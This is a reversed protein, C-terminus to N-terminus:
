RKTFLYDIAKGDGSITAKLVSGDLRYVIKKPFDHQPNEFTVSNASIETAAFLIASNNQPVDAVYYIVGDKLIIRLKEVFTTDNGRMNIGSGIYETESHKKWTEFGSRGPKANTRTWEGTLWVLMSFQKDVSVNSVKSQSSGQAVGNTVAFCCLVFLLTFRM